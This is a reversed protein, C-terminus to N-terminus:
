LVLHAVKRPWGALSSACTVAPTVKVRKVYRGEAKEVTVCTSLYPALTEVEM